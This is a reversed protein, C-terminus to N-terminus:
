MECWRSKVALVQNKLLITPILEMYSLFSTSLGIETTEVRGKASHSSLCKNIIDQEKDFRQTVPILAWFHWPEFCIIFRDRTGTRSLWPM